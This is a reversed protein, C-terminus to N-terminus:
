VIKEGLMFSNLKESNHNIYFNVHCRGEALGIARNCTSVAFEYDHTIVIITKGQKSLSELHRSIRRMNEGDLGSTPEDLILIKPNIMDSVALTLRQKQGGSLSSPHRNKYEWLGYRELTLEVERKEMHFPKNLMLEEEVSEGFLQSDANQGVFYTFDKRKSRKVPEGDFLVDGSHEKKLGCLIKSITTKGVGNHGILAIIDGPYAKITLDSFINTKKYSFTVGQAEISPEDNCICTQEKSPISKLSSARLGLFKIGEDTLNEMEEATYERSIRGENMYIFREALEMLYYLRHEAVIVTHGENKLFKMLEQLKIVSDMDLNASPEDFVYISPNLAYVSAIAIKQKEGSSMSYIEKGLLSEGGVKHIAHDIRKQILKRDFGYNECGFAVEDETLSAFFQSRPDQFISGVTRGIEWLPIQELNKNQVFVKGTLKGDYFKTALGNIVRTVTTKGCGSKGMLVIFEGEKVTLNVNKLSAEAEKSYSYTVNELRIM